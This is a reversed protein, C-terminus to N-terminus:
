CTGLGTHLRASFAHVTTRATLIGTAFVVYESGSAFAVCQLGRCVELVTDLL